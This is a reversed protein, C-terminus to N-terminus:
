KSLPINENERTSLYTSQLGSEKTFRKGSNIRQHVHGISTKGLNQYVHPKMITRRERLSLKEEIYISFCYPISQPSASPSPSPLM